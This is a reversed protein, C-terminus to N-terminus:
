YNGVDYTSISSVTYLQGAPEAWDVEIVCFEEERNLLANKVDEYWQIDRSNTWGHILFALKCTLNSFRDLHYPDIRTYETPREKTFLFYQVKDETIPDYKADRVELAVNKYINFM